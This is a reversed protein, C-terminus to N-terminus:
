SSWIEFQSVVSAAFAIKALAMNQRRAIPPRSRRLGDISSLARSSLFAGFSNIHNVTPTRRRKSRKPRRAALSLRLTLPASRCCPHQRPPADHVALHHEGDARGTRSLPLLSSEGLTPCSIAVPRSAPRLPGNAPQPVVDAIPARRTPWPRDDEWAARLCDWKRTITLSATFLRSGMRRANDIPALTDVVGVFEHRRDDGLAKHLVQLPGAEDDM